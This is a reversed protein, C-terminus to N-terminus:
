ACCCGSDKAPWHPWDDHFPDDARFDLLSVAAADNSHIDAFIESTLLPASHGFACAALLQSEATSAPPPSAKDLAFHACAEEESTWGESWWLGAATINPTTAQSKADRAPFSSAVSPLPTQSLRTRESSQLAPCNISHRVSSSSQWHASLYDLDSGIDPTCTVTGSDKGNRKGRPRGPLKLREPMTARAPDLHMLERFWTRGMWIDRVAKDSVGFQRAISAASCRRVGHKSSDNKQKIQYIEIAQAETLVARTKCALLSPVIKRAQHPEEICMSMGLDHRPEKGRPLRVLINNDSLWPLSNRASASM